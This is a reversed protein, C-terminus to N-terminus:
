LISQATKSRNIKNSETRVFQEVEIIEKPVEFKPLEAALFSKLDISINGEVFLVLKKGLFEDTKGFCFFANTLKQRTFIESIKTEILEPHLKVGGSNIVNDLRGMLLFSNEGVYSVIDNTQVWQNNTTLGKLRLCNQENLEHQIGNLFEFPFPGTNESVQRIAVHTVTETMGYTEYVRLNNKALKTALDKSLAAGGSLIVKASSLLTLNVKNESINQLQLPVFAFFFKASNEEFFLKTSESFGSLPNASPEIIIARMGLIEARLLMLKGAIYSIPLSCIAIDNVTLDFAKQTQNVSAIIQNKKLSIEKPKGTSGSTNVIIEESNRFEELFSIVSRFYENGTPESILNGNKDLFQLRIM